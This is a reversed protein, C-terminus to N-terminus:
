QLILKKNKVTKSFSNNNKNKNNSNSTSNSNSDNDSDNDNNLGDEVLNAIQKEYENCFTLGNKTCKLVHMCNGIDYLVIYNMSIVQHMFKIINESTISSLSGYYTCNKMSNNMKKSNSGKLVLGITTLGYSSNLEIITMLIQYLKHEDIKKVKNQEKGKHELQGICNDCNGCNDKPYKEGFYDLIYKRRCTSIGIYRSIINLLMTRTQKYIQNQISDILIKQITFDKQSYFLYCMSNLGDRGARGIEQYYSEINQPCGYHIIVRVDAKNIGMGFAITASICNCMGNMFNEQNESRVKSTLGAHYPKCPIGESSLYNAIKETEKQTVCYIIVSGVTIAEIIDKIEDYSNKSQLKVKMTLNPRDFSARIMMSNENMKMVNQIDSIVKDTATATVALVPVNPLMDRVKYLERYSLRFDFGYSSICHAEDIAVMCIGQDDYIQDILNYSRILSEPTIYMIQYKGKILDQELNFRKKGTITSNYCCTMIGLKDMIMQQDAMLAILPSVIIALENTVLPPIQFCLSKGYGTPLIAVCDKENLITDIIQYQNNKFNDYGFINKLINKTKQYRETNMKSLEYQDTINYEKVDNSKVKGNSM